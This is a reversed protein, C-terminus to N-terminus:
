EVKIPDVALTEVSFSTYKPSEGWKNSEKQSDQCLFFLLIIGGILPILGIFMFFGNKGADQLRRFGLPLSVILVFILYLSAIIIGLVKIFEMTIGYIVGVINSCIVVALLWYFYECRRSRGKYNKIGLIAKKIAAFFSIKPIPSDDEM